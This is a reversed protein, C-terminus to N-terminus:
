NNNLLHLFITKIKFKLHNIKAQFFQGKSMEKAHDYHHILEIEEFNFKASYCGIYRELLGGQFRYKHPTDFKEIYKKEIINSYFGMLDVFVDKNCLFASCLNIRRSSLSALSINSKYYSNYEEIIRDFCNKGDGIKINMFNEDMMIKQNYITQFNYSSFSIFPTGKSILNDITETIHYGIRNNTSKLEYDWHMFGIYDYNEFLGSKYINYIVEAEAYWKGLHIFGSIDSKNIVDFKDHQIVTNSVNFFTFHENSFELDNEYYKEVIPGHTIIFIKWKM